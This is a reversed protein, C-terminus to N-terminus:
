PNTFRDCSQEDGVIKCSWSKILSSGNSKSGAGGVDGPYGPPWSKLRLMIGQPESNWDHRDIGGMNFLDTVRGMGPSYLLEDGELGGDGM